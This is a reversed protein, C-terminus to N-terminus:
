TIIETFVLDYIMSISCPNLRFWHSKCRNLATKPTFKTGYFISTVFILIQYWSVIGSFKIWRLAYLYTFILDQTSILRIALTIWLYTSKGIQALICTFEHINAHIIRCDQTKFMWICMNVMYKYWLHFIAVMPRWIFPIDLRLM